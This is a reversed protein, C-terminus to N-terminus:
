FKKKGTGRRRGTKSPPTGQAKPTHCVRCRKTRSAAGGVELVLPTVHGVRKGDGGGFFAVWFFAKGHLGTKWHLAPASRLSFFLVNRSSPPASSPPRRAGPRPVPATGRSPAHPAPVHPAQNLTVQHSALPLAQLWSFFTATKDQQMSAKLAVESCV